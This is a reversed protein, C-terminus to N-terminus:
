LYDERMIGDGSEQLLYSSDELFLFGYKITHEIYNIGLVIRYSLLTDSEPLPFDEIIERVRMNCIYNETDVWDTLDIDEGIKFYNVIIDRLVYHRDTITTETKKINVTINLIINNNYGYEIGSAWSVYKRDTLFRPVVWETASSNDFPLGSFDISIRETTYLNNWIYKELSRKVNEIQASAGLINLSM